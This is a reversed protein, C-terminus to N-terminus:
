PNYGDKPAEKPKNNFSDASVTALLGVFLFTSVLKPNM